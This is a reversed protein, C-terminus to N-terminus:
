TAPRYGPLNRDGVRSGMVWDGGSGARVVDEVVSSAGLSVRLGIWTMALAKAETDAAMTADSKLTAPVMTPVTNTLTIAVM